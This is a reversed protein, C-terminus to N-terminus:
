MLAEEDATSALLMRIRDMYLVNWLSIVNSM